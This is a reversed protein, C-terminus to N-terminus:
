TRETNLKYGDRPTKQNSVKIECPLLEEADFMASFTALWRRSSVGCHDRIFTRSLGDPHKVMFRCVKARDADLESKAATAKATAKREQAADRAEDAKTVDVAWHRGGVDDISGESVDVASLSNHGASGGVTLWLRHEGSGPEYAERRALLLWQRFYEASGAFALDDLEAPAYQNLRSTKLHHCVVPTAGNALCVDCLEGLAGGMKFVSAEGDGNMMRYLPDLIVVGPNNDIIFKEFERLDIGDQVRPLAECFVLNDVESLNVGAARSIRLATEQIVAMGSEASCMLVRCPRNVRFKDLFYGGYAISFGLDVAITTKLTKKPGGLVASQNAYLVRDVIQLLDYKATALEVAGIARYKPEAATAKQKLVDGHSHWLETVQKGTHCNTAIDIVAKAGSIADRKIDADVVLGAYHGVNAATVVGQSLELLYAPAGGLLDCLRPHDKLAENLAPLEIPTGAARFQEIGTYVARNAEDFFQHPRVIRSITPLVEPLLLISGLVQKEADLAKPWEIDDKVTM